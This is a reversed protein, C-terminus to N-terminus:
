GSIDASVIAGEVEEQQLLYNTIIAPLFVPCLECASICGRGFMASKEAASTETPESLCRGGACANAPPNKASIGREQAGCSSSCGISLTTPEVKDKTM